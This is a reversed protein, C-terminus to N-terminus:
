ENGQVGSRIGQVSEQWRRIIEDTETDSASRRLERRMMMTAEAEHIRQLSHYRKIMAGEDVPMMRFGLQAAIAEYPSLAEPRHQLADSMQNWDTGGPALSPGLMQWISSIMKAMKTEPAEWDYYVPAGSHKHNALLMAMGAMPSQLLPSAWGYSTIQSVERLGPILWGFDMLRLARDEGRYPMPIKMPGKMYDPLIEKFQDWEDSSIGLENLSYGAILSGLGFWKLMRLPHKATAEALLPLAKSQFTVFPIGFPSQRVKRIFPTVEGWNFTWKMADLAAQPGGLGYHETNHIFKALKFWTEQASYMARGPSAVQDFLHLLKTPLNAGYELAKSMQGLEEKTFTYGLGTLRRFAQYM